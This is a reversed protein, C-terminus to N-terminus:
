PLLPRWNPRHEHRRLQELRRFQQHAEDCCEAEAARYVVERRAARYAEQFEPEKLWRHATRIACNSLKAAAAISSETLLVSLFQGQRPNLAGRETGPM